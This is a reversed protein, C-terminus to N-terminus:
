VYQIQITPRDPEGELWEEYSWLDRPDTAEHCMLVHALNRAYARAYRYTEHDRFEVTRRVELSAVCFEVIARATDFLEKIEDVTLHDIKEPQDGRIFAECSERMEDLKAGATYWNTISPVM